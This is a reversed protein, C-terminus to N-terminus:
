GDLPPKSQKIIGANINKKLLVKLKALTELMPKTVM